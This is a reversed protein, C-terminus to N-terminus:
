RTVNLGDEAVRFNRGRLLVQVDYISSQPPQQIRREILWFLGSCQPYEDGQRSSFWLLRSTWFQTNRLHTTKIKRDNANKSTMCSGSYFHVCEDDAGDM